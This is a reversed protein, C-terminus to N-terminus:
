LCVLGMVRRSGVGLMGGRDAVWANVDGILYVERPMPENLAAAIKELEAFLLPHQERDLPPGPATFKDPRPVLSWLLGGAIVVGFLALLLSQFGPSGSLVAYSLLICAAALLVVFVYSAIVMLIALVAFLMMSRRPRIAVPSLSM